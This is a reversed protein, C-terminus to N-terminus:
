QAPLTPAKLHDHYHKMMLIFVEEWTGPDQSGCEGFWAELNGEEDLRSDFNFEWDSEDYEDDCEEFRALNGRMYGAIVNHSHEHDEPDILRVGPIKSIAERWEQVTNQSQSSYKNVQDPDVDKYNPIATIGSDSLDNLFAEAAEIDLVNEIGPYGKLIGFAEILQDTINDKM